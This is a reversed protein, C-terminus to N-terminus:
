GNLNWVRGYGPADLSAFDVLQPFVSYKLDWSRGDWSGLNGGPHRILNTPRAHPIRKFLGLEHAVCSADM